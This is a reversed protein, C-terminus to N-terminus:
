GPWSLELEVERGGISELRRLSAGSPLGDTDPGYAAVAARLAAELWTLEERSPPVANLEADVRAAWPYADPAALAWGHRAAEAVLEPRDEAPDGLELYLHPATRQALGDEGIEAACALYDALASPREFLVLGVPADGGGLLCLRGDGLGLAPARLALAQEPGPGRTWPATAAYRAAAEFFAAVEPEPLGAALYGEDGDLVSAHGALLGAVVPRLAELEPTPAAELSLGAPLDGALAAALEVDDLRLRRPRDADAPPEAWLGALSEAAGELVDEEDGVLADLLFGGPTAWVLVNVGALSLRGGIWESGPATRKSM